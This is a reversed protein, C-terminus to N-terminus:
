NSIIHHRDTYPLLALFQAQKVALKLKKQMKRSLRTVKAPMLTFFETLYPQIGEINKYDIDGKIESVVSMDKWKSRQRRNSKKKMM